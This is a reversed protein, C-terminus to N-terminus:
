VGKRKMGRKKIPKLPLQRPDVKEGDIETVMNKCHVPCQPRKVEIWKRSLRITYGCKECYAKILRSVMAVAAKGARRKQTKKRVARKKKRYTGDAVEEKRGKIAAAMRAKVAATIEKQSKQRAPKKPRAKEKKNAAINKRAKEQHEGCHSSSVGARRKCGSICCTVWKRVKVAKKKGFERQHKDCYPQGPKAYWKCPPHECVPRYRYKPVAKKRPM